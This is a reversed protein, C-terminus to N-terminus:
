AHYSDLFRVWGPYQSSCKLELYKARYNFHLTQTSPFWVSLGNARAVSGGLADSVLVCQRTANIAANAAAVVTADPIGSAISEALHILDVYDAMQFMQINMRIDQLKARLSPLRAALENGLDGLAKAAPETKAVDIASQTVNWVGRDKYDKIYVEVIRKALAEASSSAKAAGLVEEYPWGDGPETQQSGVLYKVQDRFHHAIELMNMLCADFGLISIKKGPNIGARRFVNEIEPMDLSSGFDDYGIDRRISRFGAGHNWVVLLYDGALYRNFGWKLFELLTEPDGTNKEPLREIVTRHANGTWDPESIEYRISGTHEGYTDIEVGVHVRESSGELCMEEIDELGADSLNNDGAIYALVAWDKKPSKGSKKPRRKAM